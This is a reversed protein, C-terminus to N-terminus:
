ASHRRYPRHSGGPTVTTRLGGVCRRFSSGTSWWPATATVARPPAHHAERGHPGPRHLGRRRPAERVEEDDAVGLAARRREVVHEALVRLDVHRRDLFWPEEDGVVIEPEGERALRRLRVVESQEGGGPCLLPGTLRARLVERGVRRGPGDRGRVRGCPDDRDQSLRRAEDSRQVVVVHATADIPGAIQLGREGGPRAVREPSVVLLPHAEHVLELAVPRDERRVAHQHQDVVVIAPGIEVRHPAHEAEKLDVLRELDRGM